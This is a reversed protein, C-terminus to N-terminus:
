QPLFSIGTRSQLEAYTLMQPKAVDANATWYVWSKGTAPDYVLKYLADPVRVKGAYRPTQQMDFYPGTFVYVDGRTRQVYKRTAAEVARAWVGRNNEPVQPVMNALSFSQAMAEPTTRQAAAAMHGRDYGSGRYDALTARENSRLRAEEYFRDTRKEDADALSRASLKEAAFVPTRRDGDYLIAFDDFCLERTSAHQQEAPIAPPTNRYFLQPCDAFRTAVQPGGPGPNAAAPTAPAQYHEVAAYLLAVLLPLLALPKKM